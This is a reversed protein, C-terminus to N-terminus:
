VQITEMGPPQLSVMVWWEGDARRRRNIKGRHGTAVAIGRLKGRRYICGGGLATVPLKAVSASRKNGVRNMNIGRCARVGNGKGDGIRCTAGIYFYFRYRYNRTRNGSEAAARRSTRSQGNGKGIQAIGVASGDGAPVPIKAISRIGGKRRM